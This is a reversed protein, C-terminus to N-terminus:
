FDMFEDMEEHKISGYMWRTMNTPLLQLRSQSLLYLVSYQSPLSQTMKFALVLVLQAIDLILKVTQHSLDLRKKFVYQNEINCVIKKIIFLINAINSIFNNQVTKFERGYAPKLHYYLGAATSVM